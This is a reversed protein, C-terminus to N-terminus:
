ATKTRRRRRKISDKGMGMLEGVDKDTLGTETKLYDAIFDVIAQPRRGRKGCLWPLMGEYIGQPLVLGPIERLFRLPRDLANPVMPLVLQRALDHDSVYKGLAKVVPADATKFKEVAKTLDRQVAALKRIAAGVAEVFERAPKDDDVM